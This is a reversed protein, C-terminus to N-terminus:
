MGQNIALFWLDDPVILLLDCNKRGPKENAVLLLSSGAPICVFDMRKSYWKTVILDPDELLFKSVRM